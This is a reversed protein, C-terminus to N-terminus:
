LAMSLAPSSFSMAPLFISSMLPPGVGLYCRSVFDADRTKSASTFQSMSASWLRPFAIVASARCDPRPRALPSAMFPGSVPRRTRIASSSGSMANSIVSAYLVLSRPDCPGASEVFGQKPDFVAGQGNRDQIM